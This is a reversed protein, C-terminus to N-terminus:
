LEFRINKIKEDKLLTGLTDILEAQRFSLEQIYVNHPVKITLTERYLKAVQTVTAYKEGVAQQWAEEVQELNKRRHLGYRVVLQPLVDGIKSVGGSAIGRNRKTMM